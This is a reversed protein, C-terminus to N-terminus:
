RANKRGHLSGSCLTEVRKDQESDGSAISTIEKVLLFGALCSIQAGRAFFYVILPLIRSKKRHLGLAQAYHASLKTVDIRLRLSENMDRIYRM